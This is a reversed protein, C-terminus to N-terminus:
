KDDAASDAPGSLKLNESDFLVDLADVSDDILDTADDISDAADDMSAPPDESMDPLDDLADSPDDLMDPLEDLLDASPESDQEGAADESGEADDVSAEPLGAAGESELQEGAKELYYRSSADPPCVCFRPHYEGGCQCYDCNCACRHEWLYHGGCLLKDRYVCGSQSSLTALMVVAIALLKGRVSARSLHLDQPMM